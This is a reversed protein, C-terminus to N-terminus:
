SAPKAIKFGTKEGAEKEAQAREAVKVLAKAANSAANLAACSDQDEFYDGDEVSDMAKDFARGLRKAMKDWDIETASKAPNRM